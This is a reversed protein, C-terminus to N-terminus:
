PLTISCQLYEWLGPFFNQAQIKTRKNTVTDQKFMVALTSVGQEFTACFIRCARSQGNLRLRDAATHTSLEVMIGLTLEATRIRFKRQETGDYKNSERAGFILLDM